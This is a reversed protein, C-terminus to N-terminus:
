VLVFQSHAQYTRSVTPESLVQVYPMSLVNLVKGSADDAM